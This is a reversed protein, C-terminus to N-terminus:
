KANTSEKPKEHGYRGNYYALRGTEGYDQESEECWRKLYFLSELIDQRDPVGVLAWRWRQQKFVPAAADACEQISDYFSFKEEIPISKAM